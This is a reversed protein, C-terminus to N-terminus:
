KLLSPGIEAPLRRELETLRALLAPADLGLAGDAFPASELARALDLDPFAADRLAHL